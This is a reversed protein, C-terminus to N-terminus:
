PRQRDHDTCRGSCGRSTLPACLPSRELSVVAADGLEAIAPHLVLVAVVETVDTLAQQCSLSLRQSQLPLM